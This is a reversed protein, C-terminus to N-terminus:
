RHSLKFNDQFSQWVGTHESSDMDRLRQTKNIPLSKKKMFICPYANQYDQTGTRM